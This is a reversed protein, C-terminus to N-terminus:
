SKQSISDFLALHSRGTGVPKFSPKGSKTKQFAEEKFLYLILAEISKCKAKSKDSSIIKNASKVGQINCSQLDQFLHRDKKM